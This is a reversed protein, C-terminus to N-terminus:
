AMRFRSHRTGLDAWPSTAVRTRDIKAWGSAAEVQGLVGADHFLQGFPERGRGLQQGGGCSVQQRQRGEGLLV